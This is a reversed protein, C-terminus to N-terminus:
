RPPTYDIPRAGAHEFPDVFVVGTSRGAPPVVHGQPVSPMALLTAVVVACVAARILM